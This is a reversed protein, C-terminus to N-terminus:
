CPYTNQINLEEDILSKLERASKEWSFYKARELGKRSFSQQMGSDKLLRNITKFMSDTDLPDFYLAADACVEPMSSTNSCTIPCGCAMAEVLPFGFGEYLSPFVLLTAERYLSRMLNQPIYGLFHVDSAIGLKASSLKLVSTYKKMGGAIALPHKKRTSAPLRSYAELLRDFNKHPYTPGIALIYDKLQYNKLIDNPKENTFFYQTPDYGNYIVRIKKEPYHLFQVIDKKTSESVTIIFKTSRILRPLLFKFYIRQHRSINGYRLSLLDHITLFQNTSTFSGHTTTSILLDMKSAQLPYYCTNWVFRSFAALKGFRSSQLLDPLKILRVSRSLFSKTPSFVILQYRSDAACLDAIKNILNYTYIGVGTPYEDLMSGNFGITKTTKM